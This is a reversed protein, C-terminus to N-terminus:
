VLPKVDGAAAWEKVPTAFCPYASESDIMGVSGGDMGAKRLIRPIVTATM